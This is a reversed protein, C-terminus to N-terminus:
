GMDKKFVAAIIRRRLVSELSVGGGSFFFGAPERGRAKEDAKGRYDV